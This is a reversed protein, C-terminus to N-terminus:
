MCPMYTLVMEIGLVINADVIHVEDGVITQRLTLPRLTSPSIEPCCSHGEECALCKEYLVVALEVISNDRTWRQVM